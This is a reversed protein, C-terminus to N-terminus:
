TFSHSKPNALCSPGPGRARVKVSHPVGSYRAGSSSALWPWPLPTSQHTTKTQKLIFFTRLEILATGSAGASRLKTSFSKAANQVLM